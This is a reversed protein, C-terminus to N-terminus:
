PNPPKQMNRLDRALRSLVFAAAQDFGEPSAEASKALKRFHRAVERTRKEAAKLGSVRGGWWDIVRQVDGEDDSSNDEDM